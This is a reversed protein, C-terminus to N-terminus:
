LKFCISIHTKYHMNYNNHSAKPHSFHQFFPPTTTNKSQLPKKQKPQTKIETFPFGLVHSIKM